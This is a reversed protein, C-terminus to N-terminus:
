PGQLKPAVLRFYIHRLIVRIIAAIPVAFFIGWFGALEEGALLAFVIWLPHLGLSDGMIKPSIVNGEFQQVVLIVLGVELAMMSSKTFGLLIAPVAGILPGFYPILDAVGCILGIILAYDMGILKVGIGVLIGVIVAVVLNGRIFCRVVHSIDLWLRQWEVRWKQQVLRMFALKLRKWDALFYIALVPSLVYPGMSALKVPLKDLFLEIKSAVFAEGESLHEDIVLAVKEPLGSTQFQQRTNQIFSDLQSMKEPLIAMLKAAENYTLPLIVSVIFVIVIVTLGFILTIAWRRTFKHKELWEILPNILYALMFALLFPGLVARVSFLFILGLILCCILFLWRWPKRDM